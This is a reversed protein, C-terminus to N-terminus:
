PPYYRPVQFNIFVCMVFSLDREREREKRKNEKTSYTNKEIYKTKHKIYLNWNEINNHDLLEALYM